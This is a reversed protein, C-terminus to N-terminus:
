YIIMPLLACSYESLPYHTIKFAKMVFLLYVSSSSLGIHVNYIACTILYMTDMFYTCKLKYILVYVLSNVIRRFFMFEQTFLALLSMFTFLAMRIQLNLESVNKKVQILDLRALTIQFCPKLVTLLSAKEALSVWICNWVQSKRRRKGKRSSSFIIKMEHVRARSQGNTSIKILIIMFCTEWSAKERRHQDPKRLNNKETHTNTMIALYCGM